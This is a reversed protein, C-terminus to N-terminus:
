HREFVAVSRLRREIVHEFSRMALQTVEATVPSMPEAFADNMRGGLIMRTIVHCIKM